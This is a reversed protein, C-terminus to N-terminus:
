ANVPLLDHMLRVLLPEAGASHQLSQSTHQEACDGAAPHQEACDGAESSSPQQASEGDGPALLRLRAEQKELM